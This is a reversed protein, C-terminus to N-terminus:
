FKLGGKRAGEALREVHGHYAFRGRDFVVRAIGKKLAEEALEQGTKAAEKLVGQKALLTNGKEDDILQAYIYRTSRYVSLRPKQAESKIKMRM